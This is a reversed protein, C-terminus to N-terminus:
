QVVELGWLLTIHTIFSLLHNQSAACRRSTTTHTQKCSQEATSATTGTLRKYREPAFHCFACKASVTRTSPKLMVLHFAASFHDHNLLNWSSHLRGKFPLIKEPDRAACAASRPMDWIPCHPWHSSWQAERTGTSGAFLLEQFGAGPVFHMQVRSGPDVELNFTSCPWCHEPFFMSVRPLVLYRLIWLTLTCFWNRVVHRLYDIYIQESHFWWWAPWIYLIWVLGALCLENVALLPSAFFDSSECGSGQSAWVLPRCTNASSSIVQFVDCRRSLHFDRRQRMPDLTCCNIERGIQQLTNLHNLCGTASKEWSANQLVLQEPVYETTM